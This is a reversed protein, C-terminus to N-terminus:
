FHSSLSNLRLVVRSFASASKDWHCISQHRRNIDTLRDMEVLQLSRPSDLIRGIRQNANIAFGIDLTSCEDDPFAREDQRKRRYERYWRRKTRFFSVLFCSVMASLLCANQTDGEGFM